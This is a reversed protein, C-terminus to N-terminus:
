DDIELHFLDDFKNNTLSGDRDWDGGWRIRIGKATGIAIAIGAAFALGGYLKDVRKPYPHPQFDVATAPKRNHKSHPYELHSVGESFYRNQEEKSRYGEILSIDTFKLVEDMVTQLRPDLEDYVKKSKTGWKYPM